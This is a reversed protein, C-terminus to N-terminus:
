KQKKNATFWVVGIIIAVLMLRPDLSIPVRAIEGLALLGVAVFTVVILVVKGDQTM